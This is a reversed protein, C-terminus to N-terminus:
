LIYLLKVFIYYYNFTKENAYGSVKVADHGGVWTETTGPVMNLLLDYEARSHVSALNGDFTQCHKQFPLNDKIDDIM